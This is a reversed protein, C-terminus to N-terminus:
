SEPLEDNDTHKITKIYEDLHSKYLSLLDISENALASYEDIKESLFDFDTYILSGHNTTVFYPFNNEDLALWLYGDLDWQHHLVKVESILRHNQPLEPCHSTM